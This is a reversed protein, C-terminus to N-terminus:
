PAAADGVMRQIPGMETRVGTAVVVATGSGGTVATGRFVMSSREALAAGRAVPDARKAVPLSEGTLMAEEVLLNQASLVRADAPVVTGPLLVLIDGPVVADAPVEVEAGDRLVHAPEHERGLSRITRESRGEIVTGLAGNFGVVALIAAAEVLAGTVLSFAGAAVLM